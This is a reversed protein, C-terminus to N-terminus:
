VHELIFNLLDLGNRKGTYMMSTAISKKERDSRKKFM